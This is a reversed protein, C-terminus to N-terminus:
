DYSKPDIRRFNETQELGEYEVKLSYKSYNYFFVTRSM